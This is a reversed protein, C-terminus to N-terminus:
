LITNANGDQIHYVKVTWKSRRRNKPNAIENVAIDLVVRCYRVAFRTKEYETFFKKGHFGMHFDFMDYFLIVHNTDKEFTRHLFIIHHIFYKVQITDFISFKRFMPITYIVINFFYGRYMAISKKLVRCKRVALTNGASEAQQPWFRYTKVTTPKQQGSAPLIPPLHQELELTGSAKLRRAIPIPPGSVM